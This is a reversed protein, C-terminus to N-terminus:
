GAMPGPIPPGNPPQQPGAGPGPPQGMGAGSQPQKQKVMALGVKLTALAKDAYPRFTEDQLGMLIKEVTSVGLEVPNKDMGQQAQAIGNGFEPGGGPPGMQAQVQPSVPPREMGAM